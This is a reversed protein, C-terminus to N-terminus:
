EGLAVEEQHEASRVGELELESHLLLVDKPDPGPLLDSEPYIGQRGAGEGAPDGRDGLQGELLVFFHSVRDPGADGIGIAQELGVHNGM